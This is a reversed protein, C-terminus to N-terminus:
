KGVILRTGHRKTLYYWIWEIMVRLRNRFGILFFIHVFSWTLWAILGTLKLGKIEAVAKAKGITAMTGKDKYKFVPRKKLQFKM